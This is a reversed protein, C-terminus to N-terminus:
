NQYHFIFRYTLFHLTLEFIQIFIMIVQQRRLAKVIKRQNDHLGKTIAEIREQAVLLPRLYQSEFKSVISLLQQPVLSANSRSTTEDIAPLLRRGVFSPTERILTQNEQDEHGQCDDDSSIEGAPIDDFSVVRTSEKHFIKRRKKHHDVSHNSRKNTKETINREHSGGLSITSQIPRQITLTTASDDDLYSIM